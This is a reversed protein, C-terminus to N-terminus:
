LDSPYLAGKFFSNLYNIIEKYESSVFEGHKLTPITDKGLDNKLKTHPINMGMVHEMGVIVNM